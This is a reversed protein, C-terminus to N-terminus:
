RSYLEVVLHEEVPIPIDNRTPFALIGIQMNDCDVQMWGPIQKGRNAEVIAKFDENNKAKERYAVEDGKKVLMSPITAKRGNIAFHGHTIMQRANARSQAFGSLYVVNDLRRELMTLLNEGTIGKKKEARTFFLHFQKESMSYYRKIKQKERLQIGYGLIRRRQRGHEGPPYARREVPCKDSVCKAGKLFLKTREVRCIRCIAEKNRSM